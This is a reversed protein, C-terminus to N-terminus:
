PTRLFRNPPQSRNLRQIWWLAAGFGTLVLCLVLQGVFTSYPEYIFTCTSVPRGGGGGSSSGGRSPGNGGGGGPAPSAGGGSGPSSVIVQRGNGGRLVSGGSEAEAWAKGQDAVVVVTVLLVAVTVRRM